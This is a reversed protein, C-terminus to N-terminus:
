VAGARAQDLATQLRLPANTFIWEVDRGIERFLVESSTIFGSGIFQRRAQLDRIHRARLLAYPGAVGACAHALAWRQIAALNSKAVPLYSASDIARVADFLAPDLSLLHFDEAPSLPELLEVLRQEARDSGRTKLEIMLHARDAYRALLDYLHPLRPVRRKLVPWSTQAVIDTLGFVRRLDTDHVVVPEDDATYRIDLELAAVGAAVVPDFAAFTNELVNVGDREGRHAVIRARALQTATPTNAPLRAFLADATHSLLSELRPNVDCGTPSAIALNYGPTPIARSWVITM